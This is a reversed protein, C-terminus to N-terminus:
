EGAVATPSILTISLRDASRGSSTSKQREGVPGFGRDSELHPAVARGIESESRTGTSSFM